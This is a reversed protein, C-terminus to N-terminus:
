RCIGVYRSRSLTPFSSITLELGKEGFSVFTVVIKESPYPLSDKRTVGARVMRLTVRIQM